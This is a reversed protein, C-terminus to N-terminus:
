SSSNIHEIVTFIDIYSGKLFLLRNCIIFIIEVQYRIYTDIMKNLRSCVNWTSCILTIDDLHDLIRYVLEPPLTLFYASARESM